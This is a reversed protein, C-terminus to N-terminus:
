RHISCSEGNYNYDRDTGNASDIVHAVDDRTLKNRSMKSKRGKSDHIINGSHPHSWSCNLCRKKLKLDGGSDKQLTVFLGFYM